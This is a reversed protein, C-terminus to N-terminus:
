DRILQQLEGFSRIWAGDRRLTPPIKQLAERGAARDPYDGLVVVYWDDGNRRVKLLKARGALGQQHMFGALAEADQAAILQITFRSAQRSRLWANDFKSAVAPTAAAPKQQRTPAPAPQPKLVAAPAETPPEAPPEAALAAVPPTEPEAEAAPVTPAALQDPQEASTDTQPEPAPAAAPEPEQPLTAPPATSALVTPMSPETQRWETLQLAGVLTAVLILLATVVIAMTRRGAAASGSKFTTSPRARTIREHLLRRVHEDIKAPVGHAQAHIARMDAESLLEMSLVGAAELRRTLYDITQRELFPHLNITHLRNAHLPTITALLDDLDPSGALVLGFPVGSARADSWLSSVEVLVDERLQDADDVLLVPRSGQRAVSRLVELPDVSALRATAAFPALLDALRTDGAAIVRNLRFGDPQQRLLGLLFASKGVGETGRVFVVQSATQLLQLAINIQTRHVSNILQVSSVKGPTLPDDHFSATGTQPFTDHDEATM